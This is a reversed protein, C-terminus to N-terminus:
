PWTTNGITPFQNAAIVVDANLTIEFDIEGAARSIAERIHSLLLTTAPVGEQRILDVIEAEIAAQVAPTNNTLATFVLNLPLATPAEVTLSRLGAPREIEIYDSVATLVAANPIPNALDETVIRVVLSGVGTEHAFVFARTVDVHAQKAWALYDRDKGGMPPAQLRELFRARLRDLPEADAGAAMLVVTAASDVGAIAAIFNLTEGANVNSDAGAAMAILEVSATGATITVDSTVRYQLQKRQLVVGASIVTGNTGTATVTGSAFSAVLRTIGKEASRRVLTNEDMKEVFLQDILWQQNLYLGNAVASVANALETYGTGPTRADAVIGAQQSRLEIDSIIQERTEVLTPLNLPL